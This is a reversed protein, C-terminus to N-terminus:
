NRESVEGPVEKRGPHSLGSHCRVLHDQDILWHLLHIMPFTAFWGSSLSLSSLWRSSKCKAGPNHSTGLVRKYIVSKKNSHCWAQQAKAM